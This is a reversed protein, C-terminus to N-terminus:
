KVTENQSLTPCTKRIKAKEDKTEQIISSSEIANKLEKDTM